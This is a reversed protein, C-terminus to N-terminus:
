SLHMSNIVEKPAQWSLSMPKAFQIREPLMVTINQKGLFM